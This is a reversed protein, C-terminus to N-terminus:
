SEKQRPFGKGKRGRLFRTREQSGNGNSSVKKLRLGFNSTWQVRLLQALASGQGSTGSFFIPAPKPMRFTCSRMGKEFKEYVLFLGLSGAWSWWGEEVAGRKQWKKDMKFSM